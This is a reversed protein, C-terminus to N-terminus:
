WDRTEGIMRPLARCQCRVTKPRIRVLPCPGEMAEHIINLRAVHVGDLASCSVDVQCGEEWKDRGRGHAFTVAHTPDFITITQPKGDDNLVYGIYKAATRARARALNLHEESIRAAGTPLYCADQPACLGCCACPQGAPARASHAAHLTWHDRSGRQSICLFLIASQCRSGEGRSAGM